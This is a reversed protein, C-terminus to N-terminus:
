KLIIAADTASFEKRIIAEFETVAMKKITPDNVVRKYLGRVMGNVLSPEWNTRISKVWSRIGDRPDFNLAAANSTSGPLAISKRADAASVATWYPLEKLLSYIESPWYDFSEAGSRDIKKSAPVQAAADKYVKGAYNPAGSAEDYVPHGMLEHVVTSLAYAPNVEVAAVFEFGVTVTKGPQSGGTALAGLAIKDVADFDLEFSSKALKLEPAAGSAHAVMDGIAKEGRKTWGAQAAPLLKAWRTKSTGGWGPPSAPQTKIFGAQTKAIDADSKGTTKRTETEEIWRLIDHVATAYKPDASDTPGLAALSKQLAGTSHSWRRASEQDAPSLLLYKDFATKAGAPTAASPVEFVNFVPPASPDVRAGPPPALPQRAIAAHPVADVDATAGHEVHEAEREAADDLRVVGSRLEASGALRQQVVHTLEHALLRGGAETSPAPASRGFVIHEGRTFASAGLTDAASAEETGDHIRVTTFDHAFRQEMRRRVAAPLANGDTTLAADVSESASLEHSTTPASSPQRADRDAIGPVLVPLQPDSAGTRKEHPAFGAM